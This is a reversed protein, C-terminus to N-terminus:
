RDVSGYGVEEEKMRGMLAEKMRRHGGQLAHYSGGVRGFIFSRFLPRHLRHSLKSATKLFVFFPANAEVAGLRNVALFRGCRGAGKNETSIPSDRSRGDSIFARRPRSHCM